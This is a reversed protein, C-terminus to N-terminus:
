GRDPEAATHLSSNSTDTGALSHQFCQIPPKPTSHTFSGEQPSPSMQSQYPADLRAPPPVMLMGPSFPM